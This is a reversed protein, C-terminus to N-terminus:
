SIAARIQRAVASALGVPVANGIQKAIEIKSGCWVFSEPFDQLQAAELHTIVRNIRRKANDRDWQPHLYQGKEPKFFETRITLSPADWRMRGMVDTTGTPKNRWCDPLLEDPLDFRGGGPPVSDYRRLSLERPNRGFHLDLWKFEGPVKQGFYTVWAGPLSTTSTREPLKGIRDRVTVWSKLRDSAVKSHTAKPLEIKGVRSGIVVARPRRQAVGYDAALLVGHTLQYNSIMGNSAEDLLLQFEASRRFREVNEIVFVQPNAREVVELYRKWLKNRPDNVDKSGLNSFGQCPPGGIVVDVEPIDTKLADEIDGWFTHGEGFNAAYTAAAHLNWEVSLVPDFGAPKFGATMGGCGAFLDIM